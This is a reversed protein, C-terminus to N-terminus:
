NRSPEISVVKYGGEGDFVVEKGVPSLAAQRERQTEIVNSIQNVLQGMFVMQDLNYRGYETKMMKFIEKAAQGGSWSGDAEKYIHFKERIQHWLCNWNEAHEADKLCPKKSLRKIKAAQRGITQDRDAVFYLLMMIAAVMLVCILTLIVIVWEM